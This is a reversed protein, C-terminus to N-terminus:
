DDIMWLNLPLAAFEKPDFRRITRLPDGSLDRMSIATNKQLKASLQTRYDQLIAVVKQDMARIQEFRQLAETYGQRGIMAKNKQRIAHRDSDRKRTIEKCIQNLKAIPKALKTKAKRLDRSADEYDPNQDHVVFAVISTIIFCLLNGLLLSFVAIYLNPPDSGLAIMEAAVKVIYHYRAFGVAALAVILCALGFWLMPWGSNRRIKDRRYFNFRRIFTGLSHGGIAIAMGVILTIGAAMADSRILPAMRFSEYNLASEPILVLIFIFFLLQWSPVKPERGENNRHRAFAIKLENHHDITASNDRIFEETASGIEKAHRRETSLLALPELAGDDGGDLTISRAEHAAQAIALVRISAIHANFWSLASPSLGAAPSGDDDAQSLFIENRSAEQELNSFLETKAKALDLSTYLSIGDASQNM